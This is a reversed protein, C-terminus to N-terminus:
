GSLECMGFGEEGDWIFRSCSQSMIKAAEQVLGHGAAFAGTGAAKRQVSPAPGGWDGLPIWTTHFNMGEIRATRNGAQLEVSFGHENSDRSFKPSNIIEARLIRGDEALYAESFYPTGDLTFLQKLGFGRGGPFQGTVWAHSGMGTTDRPGRVHGRLGVGSFAYSEGAASITGEGRIIQEYKGLFIGDATRPPGVLSQPGTSLPILWPETLTQAKVEVVM